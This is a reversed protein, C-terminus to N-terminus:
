LLQKFRNYDEKLRKTREETLQNLSGLRELGEGTGGAMHHSDFGAQADRFTLWARQSDRLRKKGEDGLIKLLQQYAANMAKDSGALLEAAEERMEANTQAQVALPAIAFLLILPLTKTMAPSM